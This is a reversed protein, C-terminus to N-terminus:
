HFGFVGVILDYLRQIQVCLDVVTLLLLHRRRSIAVLQGRIQDCNKNKIVNKNM